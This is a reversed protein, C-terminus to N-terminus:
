CTTLAEDGHSLAQEHHTTAASCTFVLKAARQLAKDVTGFDDAFMVMWAHM